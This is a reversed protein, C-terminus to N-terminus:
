LRSSRASAGTVAAGDLVAGDADDESVVDVVVARSISRAGTELSSCIVLSM